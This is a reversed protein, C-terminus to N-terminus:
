LTLNEGFYPVRGIRLEVSFKCDLKINWIFLGELRGCRLELFVELKVM